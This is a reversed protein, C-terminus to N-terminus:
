GFTFINTSMVGVREKSDGHGYVWGVAVCQMMGVLQLGFTNIYHDFADLLYLGLDTAFLTSALFALGCASLAITSRPAHRCIVANDTGRWAPFCLLSTM